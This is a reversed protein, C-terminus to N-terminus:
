TSLVYGVFETYIFSKRFVPITQKSKSETENFRMKATCLGDYVTHGSTLTFFKRWFYACWNLMSLAM